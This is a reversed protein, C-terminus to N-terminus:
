TGHSKCYSECSDERATGYMISLSHEKPQYGSSHEVLSPIHIEGGKFM